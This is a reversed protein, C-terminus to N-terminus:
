EGPGAHDPPGGANDNGNGNESANGTGNGADSDDDEADSESSPGAHAPPGRDDTENDEGTETEDSQNGPGAHAPPGRDDTENDASPGAHAPANGPNNEVAFSAVAPGIQSENSDLTSVFHSMREGFNSFSDGAELTATESVTTNEVTVKIGVTVTENPTPLEVTGNEDTEYEGIGSYSAETENAATDDTQNDDTDAETVNVTAGDVATDNATVTVSPASTDVDVTLDSEEESAAVGLPVLATCIMVVALTVAVARSVRM